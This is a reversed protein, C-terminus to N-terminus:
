KIFVFPEVFLLIIRLFKVSLVFYLLVFLFDCVSGLCVWCLEASPKYMKKLVIM